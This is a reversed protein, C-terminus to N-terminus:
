LSGGPEISHSCWLCKGPESPDPEPTACATINEPETGQEYQDNWCCLCGDDDDGGGHEWVFAVQPVVTATPSM